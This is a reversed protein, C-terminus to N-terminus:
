STMAFLLIYDGKDSTQYSTALCAATISHINKGSHSSSLCLALYCVSMHVNYWVMICLHAPPPYKFDLTELANGEVFRYSANPQLNSNKIEFSVKALFKSLRMHSAKQLWRQHCPVCQSFSKEGHCGCCPIATSCNETSLGNSKLKIMINGSLRGGTLGNEKVYLCITCTGPPCCLLPHSHM